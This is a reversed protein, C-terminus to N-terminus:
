ERALEHVEIQEGDDSDVEGLGMQAHSLEVTSLVEGASREAVEAVGAVVPSAELAEAEHAIDGDDLLAGVACAVEELSCEAEGVIDAGGEFGGGELVPEARKLRGAGRGAVCVAAPVSAGDPHV